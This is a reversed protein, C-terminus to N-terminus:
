RVAETTVISHHPADGRLVRLVEAAATVGMRDAAEVTAAGLHPTLLVNPAHLLPSSQPPEAALVDLAAGGLRGEHLAAALADEDVLSGRATNVLLAGPRFRALLAADVLPAGGAPLHLSVVDAGAVLDELAAPEAGARRVEDAEIFPDHALVRTGFGDTLRRAVGRGIHGFGVVGATLAGLERGRRSSWDGQRLARDGAAVHRLAALILAVAHDAVAEANAGPTNTVVIGRARAAELDVADVGTGYRAIVRLRPALDLQAPGIPSTGAIWAVADALPGALREPDHSPDGPVVELGYSALESAPDARGTGFSRPTVLVTGRESSM